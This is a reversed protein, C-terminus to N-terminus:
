ATRSAPGPPPCPGARRRASRSPSRRRRGGLGLVDGPQDLDLELLQRRDDRHPIRELLARRQHVVVPAVVDEDVELEFAAIEGGGLGGGDVDDLAAEPHVPHM